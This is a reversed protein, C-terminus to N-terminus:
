AHGNSEEEQAKMPLNKLKNIGLVLLDANDANARGFEVVKALTEDDVDLMEVLGSYETVLDAVPKPTGAKIAEAFAEYSLDLENPLRYRTGAPYAPSPQCKLVRRGLQALEKGGITQVSVEQKAFLIADVWGQLLTEAKSYVSMTYTDYDPGEPNNHLKLACHGLLVVHLGRKTWIAEITAVFLRWADMLAMYGAGYKPQSINEWRSRECVERAIMEELKDVTDIVLTQYDHEQTLLAGLWERVQGINELPGTSAHVNLEDIGHDLDIFIPNPWGNAWTSKGIKRQGICLVRHPSERRGSIVRKLLDRGPAPAKAPGTNGTATKM